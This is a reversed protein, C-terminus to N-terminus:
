LEVVEKVVAGLSITNQINMAGLASFGAASRDGVAVGRGSVAASVSAHVTAAWGVVLGNAVDFANLAPAEVPPAPPSEHAHAAVGAAVGRAAPDIHLVAAM